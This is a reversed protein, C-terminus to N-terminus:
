TLRGFRSRPYQMGARAGSRITALVSRAGDDRVLGNSQCAAVLGQEVADGDLEGGAVLQFLVFAARNLSHNRTGPVTAALAAIEADLAAKGYAGSWFTGPPVRISAVARERITRTPKRRTLAVLWEPATTLACEPDIFHYARGNEHVSPPVVVYGGDGRVDIGPAVRSASSQIAETYKFWLHCGGRGTLVACTRPLAGHDAELWRRHEEGGPDVDLVWFGSILGTPIGINRDARSWYRRITAPNTTADYFGRKTVPNKDRPVCPFVPLGAAAYSLAADLLGQGAVDQKAGGDAGYPPACQDARM